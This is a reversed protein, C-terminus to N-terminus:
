RTSRPAHDDDTGFGYVVTPTIEYVESPPPGATPAGYTGDRVTSPWGYELKDIEAVGGSTL